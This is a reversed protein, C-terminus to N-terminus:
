LESELGEFITPPGDLDDFVGAGAVGAAAEGAQVNKVDQVVSDQANRRLGKFIWGAVPVHLALSMGDLRKVDHQRIATEEGVCLQFRKALVTRMQDAM